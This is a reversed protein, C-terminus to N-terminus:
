RRAEQLSKERSLKEQMNQLEKLEAIRGRLIATDVESLKLADNEERLKKLRAEYHQKLFAWTPSNFDPSQM